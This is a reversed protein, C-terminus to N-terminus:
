YAVNLWTCYRNGTSTRIDISICNKLNKDNKYCDNKKYQNIIAKFIEENDFSFYKKISYETTSEFAVFKLNDFILKAEDIEVEKQSVNLKIFLNNIEKEVLKDIYDVTIKAINSPVILYSQNEFHSQDERNDDGLINFYNNEFNINYKLSKDEYKVELTWNKASPIKEQNKIIVGETECSNQKIINKLSLRLIGMNEDVDFNYDLVSCAYKDETDFKLFYGDKSQKINFLLDGVALKTTLSAQNDINLKQQNLKSNQTKYIFLFLFVLIIILIFIILVKLNKNM